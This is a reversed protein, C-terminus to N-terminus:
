EGATSDSKKKTNALPQMDPTLGFIKQFDDELAELLKPVEDSIKFFDNFLKGYSDPNRYQSRSEAMAMSYRLVGAHLTNHFMRIKEATDKPIYIKNPLYYKLFDQTLEKYKEAREQQMQSTPQMLGTYDDAADKMALLKAYTTTITKATEEFVHSHRVNREAAAIQLSSKLRETETDSEYKLKAKHDELRRDYEHKLRNSILTQLLWVLLANLGVSAGLSVLVTQLNTM